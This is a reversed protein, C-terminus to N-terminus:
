SRAREENRSMVLSSPWSARSNDWTHTEKIVKHDTIKKLRVKGFVGFELFIFEPPKTCHM